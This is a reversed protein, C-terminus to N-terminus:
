LVKETGLRQWNFTRTWTKLIKKLMAKSAQEGKTLCHLIEDNTENASGPRPM